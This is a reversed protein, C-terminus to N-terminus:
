CCCFLYGPKEGLLMKLLAVAAAFSSGLWSKLAPNQRDLIVTHHSSSEAPSKEGWGVDKNWDSSYCVTLLWGSEAGIKEFLPGFYPAPVNNLLLARLM